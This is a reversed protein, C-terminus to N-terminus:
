DSAQLVQKGVKLIRLSFDVFKYDSGHLMGIIFVHILLGHLDHPECKYLGVEPIIELEITCGNVKRNMPAM